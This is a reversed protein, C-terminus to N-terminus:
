LQELFLVVCHFVKDVIVDVEDAPVLGLAQARLRGDSDCLLVAIPVDFRNGLELGTVLDILADLALAKCGSYDTLLTRSLAKIDETGMDIRWPEIELGIGDILIVVGYIELRM